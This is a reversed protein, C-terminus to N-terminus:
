RLYSLENNLIRQAAEICRSDGSGMLDAYIILAPVTKENEEVWFKRYIRIEGDRAPVAIRAHILEQSSVSSYIDWVEPILYKDHVFAGPEGGWQMGHPLEAEMWRERAEPLFKMTTMLSKPKMMRCYNDVFIALLRGQKKLFRGKDTNFLYGNQKLSTFLKNITALGVGTQSQIERFSENVKQPGSLIHFMVKLGPEKFSLTDKEKPIDNRKGQCFMMLGGTQIYCNGAADMVHIGMEHLHRMISTSMEGAILLVPLTQMSQIKFCQTIVTNVNYSTVKKILVCAFSTGNLQLVGDYLSDAVDGVVKYYIDLGFMEQICEKVKYVIETEEVAM